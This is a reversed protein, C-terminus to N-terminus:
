CIPQVKKTGTPRKNILIVVQVLLTKREILFWVLVQAFVGEVDTTSARVM